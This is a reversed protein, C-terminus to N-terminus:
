VAGPSGTAKDSPTSPRSRGLAARAKELDLAGEWHSVVLTAVANGVMNTLARAESMFRDVGILLTLGSVPITGTSALTASLTVFGGGTVTAAGKSTLLLVLLLGLEDKFALPVDLAQGVFVAAMTLYISTGDLNFSYGTPVVLRVVSRECGLLELKDMLHPLVSESSSTGLVIVLEERLARLLRFISLGLLACVAGLVVLVFLLSTVYFSLMLKALNGLAGIGYKGVTFAMAGFAGVPAARMVIAVLGFMLGAGQDLVEVLLKGREKMHALAIGALVAIFLVQLIEGRAFAGFFTDPIIDLLHDVFGKPKAGGTVKEIASVDLTAASAHIGVGPKILHVVGLGLLLAVTTMGEFYALAKLGVRGVRKMDQVHAIGLTM